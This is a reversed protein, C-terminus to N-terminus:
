NFKIARCCAIAYRERFLRIGGRYTGAALVYQLRCVFSRVFLFIVGDRLTVV